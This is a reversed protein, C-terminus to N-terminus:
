RPEADPPLSVRAPLLQRLRFAQTRASREAHALERVVQATLLNTLVVVLLSIATVIAPSVHSPLAVLRPLIVIKGDEFAYSPPLVGALQLASPLLVAGASLAMAAARARSDSRMSITFAGFMATALSPVLVLPGLFSGALAVAFFGLAMIALMHAREFRRTWYVWYNYAVLALVVGGLVAMMRHDLVGMWAHGLVLFVFWAAFFWASLWASRVGLKRETAAIEQEVEPAADSPSKLLGNVLTALAEAQSPDAALARGIRQLALSRKQEAEPGRVPAQELDLAAQRALEMAVERRRQIEREGELHRVIADHMERATEYRQDPSLDTAKRWIADLEPPVDAAVPRSSPYLTDRWVLKVMEARSPAERFPKLAVIEYLIAGLSYIDCRPDPRSSALYQEPAMYELTGITSGAETLIPAEEEDDEEYVVRPLIVGDDSQRRVEGSSRRGASELLKAIGWDLVYVEGFDGVMINAPKLDRHVVGRAHAYHVSQAVTVFAALLRPRTFKSEALPDKRALQGVVEDLTSGRVRKMTFFPAGDALEGIDYVPVIAPHELQGQLHAERVFRQADEDDENHGAKLAVDRYLRLDRALLIDAMGGRGLLAKKAYRDPLVIDAAQDPAAFPLTAATADAPPDNLPGM